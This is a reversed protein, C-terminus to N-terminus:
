GSKWRKAIVGTQITRAGNGTIVPCAITKKRHGMRITTSFIATVTIRTSIPVIHCIKGGLTM